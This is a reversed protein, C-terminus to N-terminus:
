PENSVYFAVARYETNETNVLVGVEKSADIVTQPLPQPVISCAPLDSTKSEILHIFNKFTGLGELRV